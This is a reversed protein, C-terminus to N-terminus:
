EDSEVGDDADEPQQEDDGEDHTWGEPNELKM